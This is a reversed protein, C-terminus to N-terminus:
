GNGRQTEGRNQGSAGKAIGKTTEPAEWGRWHGELEARVNMHDMQAPKGTNDAERIEGDAGLEDIQLPPAEKGEGHLEPKTAFDTETDLDRKHRNLRWWILVASFIIAVVGVAVGAGIGGKAGPSLPELTPLLKTPTQQSTAASSWLSTDPAQYAVQIWTALHYQSSSTTTRGGNIIEITGPANSGRSTPVSLFAGCNSYTKETSEGSASAWVTMMDMPSHRPDAPLRSKDQLSKRPAVRRTLPLSWYMTLM